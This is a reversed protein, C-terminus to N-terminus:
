KGAAKHMVEQAIVAREYKALEDSFKRLQPDDSAIELYERHLMEKGQVKPDAPYWINILIPRPAKGTAYSAQDEFTMNYTRTYDFQWPSRFGVAYPGKPVNGWLPFDGAHSRGTLVGLLLVVLSFSRTAARM